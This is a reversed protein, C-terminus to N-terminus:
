PRPPLSGRTQEWAQKALGQIDEWRGSEIWGAILGAVDPYGMPSGPPQELWLAVTNRDLKEM